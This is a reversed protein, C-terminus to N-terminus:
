ESSTNKYKLIPVNFIRKREYMEVDKQAYWMLLLCCM